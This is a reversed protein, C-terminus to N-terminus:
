NNKILEESVKIYALSGKSKDDYLMILLKKKM